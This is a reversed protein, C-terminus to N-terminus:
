TVKDGAHDSDVFCNVEVLNGRPLPYNPTLDEVTYPYMEKMEKMQAQVLSPDEANHYALDFAIENKKHQDLYKFIHLAHVLHGTRPQELYRSLVYIKYAIDIRGLKVTWILIGVLNHFFQIQSDSCEYTVYMNPLYHINSFLQQPFYNM